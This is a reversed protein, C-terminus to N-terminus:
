CSDGIRLAVAVRDQRGADARVRDIRRHLGIQGVLQLIEAEDADVLDIRDTAASESM